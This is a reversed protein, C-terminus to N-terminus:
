GGLEFQVRLSVTIMNQPIQLILKYNITLDHSPYVGEFKYILRLYVISRSERSSVDGLLSISLILYRESIYTYECVLSSYYTRAFYKLAAADRNLPDCM